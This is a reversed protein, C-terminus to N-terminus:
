GQVGQAAVRKRLESMVLHFFVSHVGEVLGMDNSRVHVNVSAMQKLQGGDFGTVALTKVDHENAYEVARLINPSRGSGSIAVLLDRSRALNKLQEEFICEYGHDNALATIFSINDTLAIAHFRRAAEMNALTGKNLDQCFHSAASASGGNGILFITRRKLFGEYLASIFPEVQPQLFDLAQKVERLYEEPTSFPRMVEV